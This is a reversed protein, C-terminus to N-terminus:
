AKKLRAIAERMRSLCIERGLVSMMDFLPPTATKGSVATRITGFLQGTKLGLEEAMPRLEAELLDVAFTELKELRELPAELARLAMDRDMKKGILLATDYDLDPLFFFDSLEMIEAANLKKLREQILPTVASLYDRSIPRPVADPLGAELLPLLRATLEENSLARIYVGNMWDLKEHNFIAASKSVHELSFNVVVEAASMIETKDDLAWGLLALFNFMMEPLYGAEQYETISVAGHRKSLKARDPGLIMPLHAFRPPEYGMAEYLCLHRPASSLWEEARLVHSIGMAHDDVISALHYTPYGDSKLLVFDDLRANEFEVRGRVLDDCVTKGEMPMKFRVVPKRGAAAMEAELRRREGDALDRCRRDYGPPQKRQAQEKRMADLRESSCYCYYADGQKILRECAEHYLPLRQSQFYPGCGGDKDPGEDWDLGLWRLGELIAELAGPVTRAVDTDEIRVIFSGGHHRAFLWNFLATRINGVHPLGTPSPAYRVRVPKDM